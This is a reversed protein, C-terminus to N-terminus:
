LYSNEFIELCENQTRAKMFSAVIPDLLHNNKVRDTNTKFRPDDILESKGIAKMLRESMAQMSASLAVFKGDKCEYM